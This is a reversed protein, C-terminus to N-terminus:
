YVDRSTIQGALVLSSYCVGLASAMAINPLEHGRNIINLTLSVLAAPLQVHSVVSLVPMSTALMLLQNLSLMVGQRM